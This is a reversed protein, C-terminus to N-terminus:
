SFDCVAEWAHLTGTHPTECFANGVDWEAILMEENEHALSWQKALRRLRGQTEQPTGVEPLDFMVALSIVCFTILRCVYSDLRATPYGKRSNVPRTKLPHKSKPQTFARPFKWKTPGWEAKKHFHVPQLREPYGPSVVRSASQLLSIREEQDAKHYEYATSSTGFEYIQQAKQRELEPCSVAFTNTAGNLVSVYTGKLFKKAIQIHAPSVGKHTGVHLSEDWMSKLNEVVSDVAECPLDLREHTSAICTNISKEVKETNPITATNSPFTGLKVIEKPWPLQEAHCYIHGEFANHLM